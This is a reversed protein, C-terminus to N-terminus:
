NKETSCFNSLFISLDTTSWKEKEQFQKRRASMTQQLASNDTSTYYMHATADNNPLGHTAPEFREICLIKFSHESMQYCM